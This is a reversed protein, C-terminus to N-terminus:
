AARKVQLQRDQCVTRWIGQDFTFPPTWDLEQRIPRDDVVLSATLRQMAAWRGSCAAAMWLLSVPVHWLRATRGAARAIREVLEAVSVVEGDSVFYTRFRARGDCAVRVLADALNEVYLLSRKSLLRGFPLVKGAAAAEFLRRLNGAMGPGYVPTPRVICWSTPKDDLVQRLVEEAQLKSKGYPTTPRCPSIESLTQPSHWAAAHASSVLVVHRVGAAAAVLAVRRTGEVNTRIYDAPTCRQPGSDRHALGALHIIADHHRLAHVAPFWEWTELDGLVEVRVENALAAAAAPRRVLATVQHGAELLRRVLFCGIFGNAGTVAIRKGGVRRGSM